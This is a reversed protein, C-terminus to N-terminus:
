IDSAFRRNNIYNLAKFATTSPLWNISEVVSTPYFQWMSEGIKRVREGKEKIIGIHEAIGASHKDPSLFTKRNIPLNVDLVRNHMALHTAINKCNSGIEYYWPQLGIVVIDRGKLM